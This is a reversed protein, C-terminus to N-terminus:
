ASPPCSPPPASAPSAWASCRPRPPAGASANPWTASAPTSRTPEAWAFDRDAIVLQLGPADTLVQRSLLRIFERAQVDERFLAVVNGGGAYLVEAGLATDPAAITRDEALDDRDTVNTPSAARRVMELAWAGTARAVLHSAGVNERLRNSGFVYPQIQATDVIVLRV